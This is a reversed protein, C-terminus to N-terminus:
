PQWIATLSEYSRTDKPGVAGVIHNQLSQETDDMAQVPDYNGRLANVKYKFQDTMNDKNNSTMESKDEKAAM